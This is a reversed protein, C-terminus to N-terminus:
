VHEGFINLLIMKGAINQPELERPDGKCANQNIIWQMMDNDKEEEGNRLRALRSEIRPLFFRAARRELYKTPIAAISLFLERLVGEPILFKSVMITSIGFAQTWRDVARKYAKDRCMPSGVFIRNGARFAAELIAMQLKVDTWEEENVKALEDDFAAQVEDYVQDSIGMFQRTLDRRIVTFDRCSEASPGHTIYKLGMIEDLTTTGSLISDPQQAIWSADSPPLIVM